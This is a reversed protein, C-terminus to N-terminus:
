LSMKCMEGWTQRMAETNNNLSVGMRNQSRELSGTLCFVLLPDIVIDQIVLYLFCSKPLLIPSFAATSYFKMKIKVSM